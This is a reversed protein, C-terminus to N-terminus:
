GKHTITYEDDYSCFCPNHDLPCDWGCNRCMYTYGGCSCRVLCLNNSRTAGCEPCENMPQIKEVEAFSACFNCITDICENECNSCKM